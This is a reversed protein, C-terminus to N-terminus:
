KHFSIFQYWRSGVAMTVFDSQQLQEREGLQLLFIAVMETLVGVEDIVRAARACLGDSLTADGTAMPLKFLLPLWNIFYAM